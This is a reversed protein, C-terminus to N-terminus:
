RRAVDDNHRKITEHYDDTGPEIGELLRGLDANLASLEEDAYGETNDQRYHDM